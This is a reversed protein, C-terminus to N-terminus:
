AILRKSKGAAVQALAIQQETSLDAWKEGIEEIVQGMQKLHGTEDLVNFGMAAMKETYKGLTVGEEDTGGSELASMRALITKYAVGVTEPSQRTVSVTTALMANMQDIDVGLSNAASAVKSMGTALEELDAATTAAVAAVKDIYLEAEDAQVKYGNWIATLEESVAQTSQQTVSATKLTIDTRAQVESDSLGQQYYILAADTYDKTGKGLAIAAKNATEAFRDMEDASKGTVIRIDNLSSDLAKVYGYANQIGSSFNNIVSSAVSWGATKILGEGMKDILTKSKDLDINVTTLQHIMSTLASTGQAGINNFSQTIQNISTGTFKLKQNLTDLNYTNLKVNYAQSMAKQLKAAEEAAIRLKEKLPDGAATNKYTKQIKDLENQLNKFSQTNTEASFLIKVEETQNAM